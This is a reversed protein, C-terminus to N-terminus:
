SFLMRRRRLHRVVGRFWHITIRYGSDGTREVLNRRRLVDLIAAARSPELRLVNALEDASMDVHLVLAGLAFRADDHLDDLKNAEPGAFLRVRAEQDVVDLAKRWFWTALRPNGESYDALLRFFENRARVLARTRAAGAPEGELLGEYSITYGAAVTRTELVAALKEENWRGLQVIKRFPTQGAYGSQLYLWAHESFAVVWHVHDPSRAILDFLASVSQTGGVRRLFLNQARDLLVVTAPVDQLAELLSELDDCAKGVLAEGLWRCLVTPDDCGHIAELQLSAPEDPLEDALAALWTSKGAGQEGVLAASFGSEVLAKAVLKLDPLPGSPNSAVPGLPHAAILDDPLPREERDTAEEAKRRALLVLAKRGTGFRATIDKALEKTGMAMVRLLAALVYGRRRLGKAESVRTAFADPFRDRHASVIAADWRHLLVLLLVVAAVIALTTLYSFLTGHGVIRLSVGLLVALLLTTRGSLRVDRAVMKAREADRGHDGRATLEVHILEVLGRYAFLTVCLDRLIPWVASELLENAFRAALYTALMAFLWPLLVAVRQWWPLVLSRLRRRHLVGRVRKGLGRVWDERRRWGVIGLALAGFLTLSTRRQAPDGIAALMQGPWSPATRVVEHGGYRAMLQVQDLERVLQARGDSGFGTLANRRSATLFPLLRLRLDNGEHVAEALADLREQHQLQLHQQAELWPEEPASDPRVPLPAAGQSLARGLERRTHVLADVLLDYSAQAEATTLDGLLRTRAQHVVALREREQAVETARRTAATAMVEALQVRARQAALQANAERRAAGDTANRRDEEAQAAAAEARRQESMADQAQAEAEAARQDLQHAASVSQLIGQRDELPLRLFRLRLRDRQLELAVISDESGADQGADEPGADVGADTGADTPPGADFPAVVGADVGADTGADPPGADVGGDLIAGDLIAGDPIAGDLIAGDPIAGDPSGADVSPPGADTLGMRDAVDLQAELAARRNRVADEDDLAVEFLAGPSVDLPLHGELLDRLAAIQEPVSLVRAVRAHVEAETAVHEPASQAENTQEVPTEPAPEVAPQAPSPCGPWALSIAVLAVTRAPGLTM